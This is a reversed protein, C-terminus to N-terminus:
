KGTHRIIVKAGLLRATGTFTDTTDRGIKINLINDVACGTTTVSTQTSDTQINNAGVNTTVTQAANFATDFSSGDSSCATAITWKVANAGGGATVLWKLDVDINGVWTHPLAISFQASESISDDYDLTAAFVNTGTLCNATPVQITGLTFTPAATTNNCGAAVIWAPSVVTIVNGTGEQSLTKNTGTQTSADSWTGCAGAAEVLLGLTGTTQACKTGAPASSFAASLSDAAGTWLHVAGTSSDIGINNNITSTFGAGAPLKINAAAFNYLGSGATGAAVNTLTPQATTCAGTSQLIQTLFQNAVAACNQVATSAADPFKMSRNTTLATTDFTGAQNAVTGIAVQTVPLAQSGIAVTNVAGPIFSQSAHTPNAMNSMDTNMGGAGGPCGVVGSDGLTTASAWTVCHGTTPTISVTVCKGTVDGQLGSSSAWNVCDTPTPTVSYTSLGAAGSNNQNVKFAHNTADCYLLDFNPIGSPPTGLEPCSFYSTAKIVSSVFGNQDHTEVGAGQIYTGVFHDFTTAYPPAGSIAPPIGGTDVNGSQSDKITVEIRPAGGGTGQLDALVPQVESDLLIHRFEIPGGPTGSYNGVVFFPSMGPGQRHTGDIKADYGGGALDWEIGRFAMPSDQMRLTSSSTVEAQSSNLALPFYLVPAWSADQSFAPGINFNVQDLYLTPGVSNTSRAVIAKGTYNTSSANGFSVNRFSNTYADDTLWITSGNAFTGGGFQDLQSINLNEYLGNNADNGYICPNALMCYVSAGQSIGFGAVGDSGMRGDWSVNSPIEMTENIILHGSQMFHIHDPVKFYSNIPYGYNQGVNPSPPFYITGGTFAPSTYGISQIAAKIAPVADYVIRAGSVGAANVANALVISTTGGGSTVTTSLIDNTAAGATCASDTVYVPLQFNINSFTPGYDFFSSITYLGGTQGTPLTTGIIHYAGADAPRSACIYYEWAGAVATWTLKNSTFYAITGGTASTTAGLRTDMPTNSITFSNGANNVTTVNFYGEFQADTMGYMHVEALPSLNQTGTTTCTVTTNSRSCSVLSLTNLGLTALGSAYTTAASPLTLGGNQDRAIIKYKTTTSGTPSNVGTFSSAEPTTSTTALSAIVSPASPTGMTNTAGAGVIAVGDSNNFQSSGLTCNTSGGSCTATTVPFVTIGVNKAGFATVDAWPDTGRLVLSNGDPTTIGSAGAFAGGSNFQLSSFPVGPTGGGGGGGSQLVWTNSPGCIFIQFTDITNFQDGNSCTTPKAGSVGTEVRGNVTTQASASAAFLFLLLLLRRL